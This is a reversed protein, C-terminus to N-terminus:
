NFVENENVALILCTGMAIPSLQPNCDEIKLEKAIKEIYSTM